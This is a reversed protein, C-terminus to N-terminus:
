DNTTQEADLDLAPLASAIEWPAGILPADIIVCISGEMRIAGCPNTM